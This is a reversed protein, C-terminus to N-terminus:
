IHILLLSSPCLLLLSSPEERLWSFPLLLPVHWCFGREAKMEGFDSIISCPASPLAPQLLGRRGLMAGPCPKSRVSSASDKGLGPLRASSPARAAAGAQVYGGGLLLHPSPSSLHRQAGGRSSACAAAAAPAASRCGPEGPSVAGPLCRPSRPSSSRPSAASLRLAEPCCSPSPPKGVLFPFRRNGRLALAPPPAPVRLWPASLTAPAVALGAAATPACPGAPDSCAAPCSALCGTLAPLVNQDCAHTM